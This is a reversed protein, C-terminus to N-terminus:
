EDDDLPDRGAEINRRIREQTDSFEASTLNTAMEQFQKDIMDQAPDQVRAAFAIDGLTYNVLIARRPFGGSEPVDTVIARELYLGIKRSTEALAEIRANLKEVEEPPLDGNNQYEFHDMGVGM